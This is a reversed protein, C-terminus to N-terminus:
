KAGVVAATMESLAKAAINRKNEADCRENRMNSERRQADQLAMEADALKKAAAAFQEPTPRTM